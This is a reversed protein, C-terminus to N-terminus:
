EGQSVQKDNLSNCVNYHIDKYMGGQIGTHKKLTPVWLLTTSDYPKYIKFTIFRVNAGESHSSGLDSDLTATDTWLERYCNIFTNNEEMAKGM